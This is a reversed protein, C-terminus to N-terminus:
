LVTDRHIQVLSLAGSQRAALQAQWQYVKIHGLKRELGFAIKNGASHINRWARDKNCILSGSEEWTLLAPGSQKRSDSQDM